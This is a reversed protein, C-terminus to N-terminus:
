LLYIKRTNLSLNNDIYNKIINIIKPIEVDYDIKYQHKSKDLKRQIKWKESYVSFDELHENCIMVHYKDTTISLGTFYDYPHWEDSVCEIILSDKRVFPLSCM